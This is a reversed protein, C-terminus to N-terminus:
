LVVNTKSDLVGQEMKVFNDKTINAEKRKKNGNEYWIKYKGNYYVM